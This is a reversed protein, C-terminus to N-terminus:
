PLFLASFHFPFPTTKAIAHSTSHHQMTSLYQPHLLAINEARVTITFQSTVPLHFPLAPPQLTTNLSNKLVDSSLPSRRTGTVERYTIGSGSWKICVEANMKKRKFKEVMLCKIVMGDGYLATRLWARTKLPSNHWHTSTSATYLLSTSKELIYM